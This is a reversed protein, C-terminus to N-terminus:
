SGNKEDENRLQDQIPINPKFSINPNPFREYFYLKRNSKLAQLCCILPVIIYNSVQLFLSHLTTTFCYYLKAYNQLILFVIIYNQIHNQTQSMLILIVTKFNVLIKHIPFHKTIKNKM